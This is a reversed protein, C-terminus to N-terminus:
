IALLRGVPDPVLEGLALVLLFVESASVVDGLLGQGCACKSCGINV